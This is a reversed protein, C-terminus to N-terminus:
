NAFEYLMPGMMILMIPPMTFLMTVLTLKTPIKNAAEEARMARKDRMESSYMRLAESMPTGYTISQVLTGVFSTIDQDDVRHAFEKLVTVRDKGAKIEQNVVELEDALAPHSTRTEKAIRYISQDMSQGAEISVMMLDLADPFGSIIEAKRSAIRRQLMFKPLFFGGFSGIIIYLPIQQFQLAETFSLYLLYACALLFGVISMVLQILYYMRLDSKNRYGGRVMKMRYENLEEANRPELFSSIEQLKEVRPMIKARFANEGLTSELVSRKVRQQKVKDFPEKPKVLLFPLVAMILILGFGGLIMMPTLVGFQSELMSYLSTLMM